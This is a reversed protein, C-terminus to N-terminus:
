KCYIVETRTNTKDVSAGLCLPQVTWDGSFAWLAKQVDRLANKSRLASGLVARVQCPLGHKRRTRIDRRFPSRLINPKELFQCSEKARKLGNELRCNGEHDAPSDFFHDFGGEIHCSTMSSARGRISGSIPLMPTLSKSSALLALLESRLIRLPSGLVLCLFRGSQFVSAHRNGPKFRAVFLEGSSKASSLPHADTAQCAPVVKAPITALVRRFINSSSAQDGLGFFTDTFGDASVDGALGRLKFIKLLVIRGPRALRGSGFAPLERPFADIIIRDEWFQYSGKSTASM